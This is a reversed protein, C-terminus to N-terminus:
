VLLSKVSSVGRQAAIPAPQSVGGFGARGEWGGSSIGSSMLAGSIGRDRRDLAIMGGGQASRPANGLRWTGRAADAFDAASDHPAAQPHKSMGTGVTGESPGRVTRRDEFSILTNKSERRGLALTGELRPPRNDEGGGAASAGSRATETIFPPQRLFPGSRQRYMRGWM